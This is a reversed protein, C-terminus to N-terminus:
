PTRRRGTRHRGALDAPQIGGPQLGDWTLRAGSLLTASGLDIQFWHGPSFAGGTVTKADGDILHSVAM